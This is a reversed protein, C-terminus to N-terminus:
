LVALGAADVTVNADTGNGTFPLGPTGSATDIYLILPSTAAVGTDKFVVFADCNEGNTVTPFTFDAADLGGGATVSTTLTVPSDVLDAGAIDSLFEDNDFDPVFTSNVLQAKITDNDWDISGQGIKQMGLKFKANAM